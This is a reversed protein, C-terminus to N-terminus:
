SLWPYVFYCIVVFLSVVVFASSLCKSCKLSFSLCICVSVYLSLSVFRGVMCVVCLCLIVASFVQALIVLVCVGTRLCLCLVGSNQCSVVVVRNKTQKKSSRPDVVFVVQSFGPRRVCLLCLVVLRSLVCCWCFFRSWLCMAVSVVLVILRSRQKPNQLAQVLV